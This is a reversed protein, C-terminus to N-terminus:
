RSSCLDHLKKDPDVIMWNDGNINLDEHTQIIIWDLSDNFIYLDQPLLSINSVISHFNSEFVYEKGIPLFHFDWQLYVKGLELYRNLIDNKDHYVISDIINEKLMDWLFCAEGNLYMPYYPHSTNVFKNILSERLKISAERNLRTTFQDIGKLWNEVELEITKNKEDSDM